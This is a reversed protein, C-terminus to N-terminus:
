LDANIYGVLTFFCIYSWTCGEVCGWRGQMKVTWEAVLIGVWAGRGWGVRWATHQWSGGKVVMVQLVFMVLTFVSELMEFM